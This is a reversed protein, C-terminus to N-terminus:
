NITSAEVKEEYTTISEISQGAQEFPGGAKNSELIHEKAAGGAFHEPKQKGKTAKFKETTTLSMKNATANHLVSGKVVVPIGACSFEAVNGAESHLELALKDNAPTKTGVKEVGLVGGLASTSIIGEGKGTSNCKVGSTECGTFVPKVSGVSKAGTFEGTATEGTCTIKTGGVTELTAKTAPKIASTFKTKLITATWEFKEKGPVSPKTCSSNLFKGGAQAVCRGFEPRAASASASVVAALAFAAVLCVAMMKRRM